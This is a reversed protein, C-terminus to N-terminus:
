LRESQNYQTRIWLKLRQNQKIKNVYEELSLNYKAMYEANEVGVFRFHWPEYNIGTNVEKDRPYRLVFGYNNAHNILWQQSALQDVDAYLDKRQDLYETDILDLALGTHHESAGALQSYALTIKKAEGYGYGAKIKDSISHRFLEKQYSLSRYGSVLTIHYGNIHSDSLFHSIADLVTTNLAEGGVSFKEFNLEETIMQERNIIILNPNDLYASNPLQM